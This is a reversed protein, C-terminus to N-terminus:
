WSLTEGRAARTIVDVLDTRRADKVIVGVAGAERAAALAAHEPYATFIVVAAGPSREAIDATVESGLMDALCLDLLVVDPQLRGSMEVAERGGCATGVIRIWPSQGVLAAVGEAVVPHDDVVLVSITRPAFAVTM